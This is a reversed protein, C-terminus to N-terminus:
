LRGKVRRSRISSYCITIISNNNYRDRQMKGKISIGKEKKQTSEQNSQTAILTLAEILM